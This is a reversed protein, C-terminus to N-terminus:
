CFFFNVRCLYLFARLCVGVCVRVCVRVFVCMCVSSEKLCNHEAGKSSETETSIEKGKGTQAFSRALPMLTLLAIVSFTSM